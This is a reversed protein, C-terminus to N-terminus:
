PRIMADAPWRTLARCPYWGVEDGASAGDEQEAHWCMVLSAARRSLKPRGLTISARIRCVDIAVGIVRLESTRPDLAALKGIWRGREETFAELSQDGAKLFPGELAQWARFKRRAIARLYGAAADRSGQELRAEVAEMARKVSAREKTTAAFGGARCVLKAADEPRRRLAADIQRQWETLRRAGSKEIVAEVRDTLTGDGTLTLLDPHSLLATADARVPQDDEREARAELSEVIQIVAIKAQTGGGLADKWRVVQALVAEFPGATLLTSVRGTVKRHEALVQIERLRNGMQAGLFETLGTDGLLRKTTSYVRAPETEARAELKGILGWVVEALRRKNEPAPRRMLELVLRTAERLDDTSSLTKLAANFRTMEALARVQGLERDAGQLGELELLAADPTTRALERLHGLREATPAAVAPKAPPETPGAREVCASWTLATLIVAM